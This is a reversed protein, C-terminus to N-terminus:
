TEQGRRPEDYLIFAEVKEKSKQGSCLPSIPSNMTQTSLSTPESDHMTGTFPTTLPPRPPAEGPSPSPSPSPPPAATTTPHGPFLLLLERPFFFPLSTPPLATTSISHRIHWSSPSSASKSIGQPQLPVRLTKKKTKNEEEDRM